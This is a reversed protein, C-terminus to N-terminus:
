ASGSGSGGAPAADTAVLQLRVFFEHGVEIITQENPNLGTVNLEAGAVGRRTVKNAFEFKIKIELTDGEQIKWSGTGSVDTNTEFIGADPVGSADFFRLPNQILLDRFMKTVSGNVEATFSAAIADSVTVSELMGHADGLNYVNNLTEFASMGYLKNMVYALVLDNASVGDARLAPDTNLSLNASGYHLGTAVGDLDVYENNLAAVLAAKFSTDANLAAKPKDDGASRTWALYGELAATNVGIQVRHGYNEVDAFNVDNDSATTVDVTTAYKLLQAAAM